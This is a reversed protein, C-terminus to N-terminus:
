GFIASFIILAVLLLGTLLFMMGFFFIAREYPRPLQEDTIFADLEGAARRREYERGREEMFREMTMRGSFIVTDVPFSDPRLDTNFFHITFIFGVALLAEEGHIIAAINIAWGPLFWTFLEPFWLMLGSLGIVPVGWFIAFYDFKEWYTWRDYVPRPGQGVSWKVTAIFDRVDDMNPAMSDKGLFFAKAGMGSRRWRLFVEGIHYFFYGFTVVAGIRHLLGAGAVGGFLVALARAWGTESFKLMLGTAALLLFSVIVFLHTIRQALTFRIFYKDARRPSQGHLRVHRLARPLWALTHLGFFGFVGALLAMMFMNTWFLAPYRGRDHPDSHAIFSTFRPEASPHCKRCTELRKAPGVESAPDDVALTMHPNHCDACKASKMYGLRWTKGHMSSLYKQALDKHCNGCAGTVSVMFESKGTEGIRHATHCDVCTPRGAMKGPEESYHVGKVYATYIGRHCDACTATVNDRHVASRPDGKNVILHSSHCDTCVAAVTLGKLEVGKGHVSRTYDYEAPYPKGGKGGGHCRGCLKPIANHYTAATVDRHNKIGHSGHCDTCYPANGNGAARLRGHTSQEYEDAFRAHCNACAVNEMRIDHKGKKALAGTHCTICPIGAHVSAALEATDAAVVPKATGAIPAAHCKLCEAESKGARAAMVPTRRHVPHCTACAIRGKAGAASKLIGAHRKGMGEHCRECTAPQNHPAVSSLRNTAPLVRHSEHCDACTPAALLGKAYFARGHIADSFNREVGGPKRWTHPAKGESHCGGCLEALNARHVRAMRERAAPVSHGNGHCFACVPVAGGGEKAQQHHGGTQYDIAVDGHCRGCVVADLGEKHVGKKLKATTHCDACDLGKHVSRDLAAPDVFLSVAADGRKVALTKDAHCAQCADREAASACLPLLSLAILM